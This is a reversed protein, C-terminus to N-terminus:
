EIISIEVQILINTELELQKEFNTHMYKKDLNPTFYKDEPSKLSTQKELDALLPNNSKLENPDKFKFRFEPLVLRVASEIYKSQKHDIKAESLATESLSAKHMDHLVREVMLKVRTTNSGTTTASKEALEYGLSQLVAAYSTLNPQIEKDGTCSRMTKFLFTMRSTKGTKALETLIRNFIRVDSIYEYPKLPRKRPTEAITEQNNINATSQATTISVVLEMASQLLQPSHSCVDIYALLSKNFKAHELKFTSQENSLFENSKKM